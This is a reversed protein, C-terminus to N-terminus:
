QGAGGWFDYFNFWNYPALRCYHELRSVYREVWERMHETQRPSDAIIHEAFPEFHIEYRNGGRYLAFFLVVPAQLLAALIFPGAPFPADAGLFSCVVAKDSHFMRDGLIGVIEGRALCEKVKLLTHPRGLPIVREAIEPYPRNLARNIKNAHEENMLVNIPFKKEIRGQALLMEYSGLHSGLLLCGAGRNLASDLADAGHMSVEFYSHRGSLLYIRDHITSSFTHYHRFINRLGAKRQLVRALYARSARRAHVSFVIFYWCIPYLFVRGAGRGLKLTLWILWQMARLSGRERQALWTESM